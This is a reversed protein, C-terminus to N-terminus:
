EVTFKGTTVLNKDEDCIYYTGSTSTLVNGNINFVVGDYLRSYEPFYVGCVKLYFTSVKGLYTSLDISINEKVDRHLVINDLPYARVFVPKVVGSGSGEPHTITITNNEIINPVRIITSMDEIHKTIINHMSLINNDPICSIMDLTHNILPISNTPYSLTLGDYEDCEVDDISVDGVYVELSSLIVYGENRLAEINRDSGFVDDLKVSYENGIKVLSDDFKFLSNIIMDENYRSVIMVRMFATHSKSSANNKFYIKNLRDYLSSFKTNKYMINYTISQEEYNIDQIINIDDGSPDTFFASGSSANDLAFDGPQHVPTISIYLQKDKYEEPIYLSIYEQYLIDNYKKTQCAKNNMVNINDSYFIIMGADTYHYLFINYEDACKRYTGIQEIPWYIRVEVCSSGGEEPYSDQGIDKSFGIHSFTSASTKISVNPEPTMFTVDTNYFNYKSDAGMIAPYIDKYVTDQLIEARISMKKQINDILYPIIINASRNM